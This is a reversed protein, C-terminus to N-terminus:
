NFTDNDVTRVTKLYSILHYNYMYLDMWGDMDMYPYGCMYPSGYKTIQPDIYGHISISPHIQVHQVYHMLSKWDRIMM